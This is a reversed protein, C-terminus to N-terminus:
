AAVENPHAAMAAKATSYHFADDTSEIKPVTIFGRRVERILVRYHRWGEWHEPNRHIFETGGNFTRSYVGKRCFHWNTNPHITRKM